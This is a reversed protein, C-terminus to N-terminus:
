QECYLAELRDLLDPDGAILLKGLIRQHGGVRLELFYNSELSAVWVVGKWAPTKGCEGKHLSCIHELNLPEASVLCHQWVNSTNPGGSHLHLGHERLRQTFQRFSGMQRDQGRAAFVL